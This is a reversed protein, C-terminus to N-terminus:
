SSLWPALLIGTAPLSCMTGAISTNSTEVIDKNNLIDQEGWLHDM